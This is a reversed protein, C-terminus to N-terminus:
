GGAMMHLVQMDAGDPVETAPYAKRPVLTGDIRVVLLKFTYNRAKLVDDVTMGSQHALPEGNVHIM